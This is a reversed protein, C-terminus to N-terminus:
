RGSKNYFTAKDSRIINVEIVLNFSKLDATMKSPIASANFFSPALRIWFTFPMKPNLTLPGLPLSTKHITSALFPLPFTSTLPLPVCKIFPRGSLFEQHFPFKPQHVRYLKYKPIITKKKKKKKKKQLFLFTM